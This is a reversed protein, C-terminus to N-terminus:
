RAGTDRGGQDTTSGGRDRPTGRVARVAAAIRNRFIVPVAVIGAIVAQIILSGSGPDLYAFVPEM